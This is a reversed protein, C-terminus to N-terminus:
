GQRWEGWSPCVKYIMVSSNIKLIPGAPGTVLQEYLQSGKLLWTHDNYCVSPEGLIPIHQLSSFTASGRM